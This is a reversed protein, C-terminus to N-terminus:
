LTMGQEQRKCGEESDMLVMSSEVMLIRQEAEPQSVNLKQSVREIAERRLTVDQKYPTFWSMDISGCDMVALAQGILFYAILGFIM